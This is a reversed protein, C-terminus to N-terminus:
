RSTEVSGGLAAELNEFLAYMDDISHALVAMVHERSSWNPYPVSIEGEISAGSPQTSRVVAKPLLTSANWDAAFEHLHQLDVAPRLDRVACQGTVTLVAARSDLLSITIRVRLGSDRRELGILITNDRRRYEVDDQRLWHEIIDLSIPTFEGVVRTGEVSAPDATAVTKTVEAVLDARLCAGTVKSYPANADFWAKFADDDANDDVLREFEAVQVGTLDNTLADGLRECLETHTRAALDELRKPPLGPLGAALTARLNDLVNNPSGDPQATDLTM